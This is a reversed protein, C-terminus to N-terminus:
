GWESAGRNLCDGMMFVSFWNVWLLASSFKTRGNKSSFRVFCYSLQGNKERILTALQEGVM